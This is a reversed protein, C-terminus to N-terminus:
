IACSGPQLPLMGEQCQYEDPYIGDEPGGHWQQTPPAVGGLRKAGGAGHVPPQGLCGDRALTKDRTDEEKAEDEGDANDDKGIDLDDAFDFRRGLLHGSKVGPVFVPM